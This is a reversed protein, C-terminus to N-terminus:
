EKVVEFQGEIPAPLLGRKIAEQELHWLGDRGYAAELSIRPVSLKYAAVIQEIAQTTPDIRHEVTITQKSEIVHTRDLVMGIARAHDKSGPTDLLAELRNIAKPAMTAIRKQGKERIAAQTRPDHAIRYAMTAISAASSTKTGFGAARAANAYSGHGQRGEFLARVFTRWKPDLAAM